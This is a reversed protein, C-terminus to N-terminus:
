AAGPPAPQDASSTAGLVRPFMRELLGPERTERTEGRLIEARGIYGLVRGADARDVVPLRGIKHELMRVLADRLMEDPHAVILEDAGAELVTLSHQGADAARLVDSRTVIGVLREEDDLVLSAHRRSFARYLSAIGAV